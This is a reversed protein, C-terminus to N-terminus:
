ILYLRHLARCRHFRFFEFRFGFGVWNMEVWGLGVWYRLACRLFMELNWGVVVM